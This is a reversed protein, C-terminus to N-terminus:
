GLEIKITPFDKRNGEIVTQYIIEHDPIITVFPFKRPIQLKPALTDATDALINWHCDALSETCTLQLFVNDVTNIYFLTDGNSVM